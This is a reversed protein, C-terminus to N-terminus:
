TLRMITQLLPSLCPDIKLHHEAWTRANEKIRQRLSIDGDITLIAEYLAQKNDPEIVYSSMNPKMLNHLSTGKNATIISACGAALINTLKSPFFSDAGEPKQVVLQLFSSNLMQNVRNKPVLSGLTLNPLDLGEGITKLKEKYLGEGLIVFEYGDKHRLMYAVDLILELGQKEGINGSYVILKKSLDLGLHGHLWTDQKTPRIHELDAWNPMLITDKNLKKSAMKRRMGESITSIYDAHALQLREFKELYGCLRGPLLNLERAADVQLDQIHCWIKSKVLFKAIFPLVPLFFPPLVVVTLISKRCDKINIMLAIFASVFFTLESVIKLLAGPSKPIYVWSRVDVLNDSIAKNYFKNKHGKYVKWYPYFPATSFNLAKIGHGTLWGIMEGNYKGIGTLEEPSYYSIVTIQKEM